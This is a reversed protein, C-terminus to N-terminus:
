YNNFLFATTLYKQRGCREMINKDIMHYSYCIAFIASEVQHWTEENIECESDLLKALNYFKQNFNEPRPVLDEKGFYFWELTKGAWKCFNVAAQISPLQEGLEDKSITNAEVGCIGGLEVQTLKNAKRIGRMRQGIAQLDFSGQNEGDIM